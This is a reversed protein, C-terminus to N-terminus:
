KVDEIQIRPRKVLPLAAVREKLEAIVKEQETSWASIAALQTMSEQIDLVYPDDLYVEDKDKVRKEILRLKTTINATEKKFVYEADVSKNKPMTESIGSRTKEPGRSGTTNSRRDNWVEQPLGWAIVWDNYCGSLLFRQDASFRVSSVIAAHGHLRRIEQGTTADVVSIQGNRLGLAFVKWDPSVAISWANTRIDAQHLMEHSGVDWIKVRFPGLPEFKSNSGLYVISLARKGDESLVTQLHAEGDEAVTYEGSYRLNEENGSWTSILNKDYCCLLKSGSRSVCLGRVASRHSAVERYKFPSRTSGLYVKGSHDALYIREGDGSLCHSAMSEPYEHLLSGDGTDILHLKGQYTAGAILRGDETISTYTYENDLVRGASSEVDWASLRYNLICYVTPRRSSYMVNHVFDGTAPDYPDFQDVHLRYAEGETYELPCELRPSLANTLEEPCVIGYGGAAGARSSLLREANTADPTTKGIECFQSGASDSGVFTGNEYWFAFGRNHHKLLFTVNERPDVIDRADYRGGRDDYKVGDARKLIHLQYRGKDDGFRIEGEVTSFITPSAILYLRAKFRDAENGIGIPGRDGKTYGVFQLGLQGRHKGLTWDLEFKSNDELALHLLERDRIASILESKINRVQQSHESSRITILDLYEATRLASDLEGDAYLTLCSELTDTLYREYNAVQVVDDEQYTADKSWLRISLHYTRQEASENWAEGMDCVIEEGARWEEVFFYDTHTAPLGSRMGEPVSFAEDVSKMSLQVFASTLTASSVNKVKTRRQVTPARVIVGGARAESLEEYPMVSFALPARASVGSHLYELSPLVREWADPRLRREITLRLDRIETCLQQLRASDFVAGFANSLADKTDASRHEDDLVALLGYGFAKYQHQKRSDEVRISENIKDYILQVQKLCANLRESVDKGVPTLSRRSFEDVSDAELLPEQVNGNRVYLQTAIKGFAVLESETLHEPVKAVSTEVTTEPDIVAPASPSTHAGECGSLTLLCALISAPIAQSCCVPLNSKM